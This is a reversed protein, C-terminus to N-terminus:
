EEEQISKYLFNYASSMLGELRKSDGRAYWGLSMGPMCPYLGFWILKNELDTIKRHTDGSVGAWCKSGLTVILRPNSSQMEAHLYPVCNEIHADQIDGSYIPCRTLYTLLCRSSTFGVKKLIPILYSQHADFVTPNELIIMLDPDAFNWQPDAAPHKVGDCKRCTRCIAQLNEPKTRTFGSLFQNRTETLATLLDIRDMYRSMNNYLDEYLTSELVTMPFVPKNDLAGVIDLASPEM